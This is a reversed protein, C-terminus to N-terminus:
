VNYMCLHMQRYSKVCFNSAIYFSFLNLVESNNQVRGTTKENTKKTMKPEKKAFFFFM